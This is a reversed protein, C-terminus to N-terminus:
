KKKIFLPAFDLAAGRLAKLRLWKQKDCLSARVPVALIGAGDRSDARSLTM